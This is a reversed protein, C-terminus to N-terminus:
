ADREFQFWATTDEGYGCCLVVLGASFFRGHLAQLYLCLVEALIDTFGAVHARRCPARAWRGLAQWLPQTSIDLM